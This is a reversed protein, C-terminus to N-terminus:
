QKCYRFSCRKKKLNAIKKVSSVVSRMHETMTKNIGTRYGYDPGYLYKLNFNNNLQVLDCDDCMVLALEAKPINITSNKAFKGTFSLNGLSFLKKFKNGSCSRCNKILM